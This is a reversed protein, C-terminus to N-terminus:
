SRVRVAFVFFGFVTLVFGFFFRGDGGFSVYMRSRESSSELMLM